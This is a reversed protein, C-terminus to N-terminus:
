IMAPTKEFVSAIAIHTGATSSREFGTMVELVHYTLNSSARAQDGTRIAKAMDSLGLGRSNQPYDFVLPFELFEGKSPRYIRIPGGFTNPDPVSLTGDSGYIEICPMEAKYADFTTFITGVAGSEFQMMGTIYTPVDVKIIEGNHPSSTIKREPFSIKAMGSVQKIGGLLNVLATIYYPGMDMMPGGGHKYYFEPDPHWTEHGRCVMFASAGVPTGIYGDEILKRCTQLGAGLFTDPAGGIQLQKQAAIEVLEKGEEFTAGLPKESYVHKGALLAAKTVGYHEYPRTLNLVIEVQEDAFLQYMDEYIKGVEYKQAANEAKSRILDCIGVIEINEKFLTTLNELYIGSIDGIGVIGVRVREM